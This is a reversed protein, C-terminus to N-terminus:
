HAPCLRVNHYENCEKCFLTICMEKLNIFVEDKDEIRHGKRCIFIIEQKSM